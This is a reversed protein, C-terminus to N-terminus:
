PLTFFGGFFYATVYLATPLWAPLGSAFTEILFGAGLLAGCTLAFILETNPGLFAGHSHDHGDGKGHKGSEHAHSGPADVGGAHDGADARTVSLKGLATALANEDIQRRDYEIQVVGAASADAQMVGVTAYLAREVTRARREHSIGRVQWLAHGYRESLEAGAAGAIERLRPLPLMAADFHICLQAAGGDSAPGVHVHDVGPRGGLTALLRDVCADGAHPLDPLVLPIDLRLKETM